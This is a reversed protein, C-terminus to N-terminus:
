PTRSGSPLPPSSAFSRLASQSVEGEIWLAVAINARAVLLQPFKMAQEGPWATPEAAGPRKRIDIAARTATAVDATLLYDLHFISESDRDNALL